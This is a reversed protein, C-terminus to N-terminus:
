SEFQCSGPQLEDQDRSRRGQLYAIRRPFRPKWTTHTTRAHPSSTGAHPTCTDTATADAHSACANATPASAHPTSSNATPASTNTRNRGKAM